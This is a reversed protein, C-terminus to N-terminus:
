GRARLLISINQKALDAIVSTLLSTDEPMEIVLRKEHQSALERLPTYPSYSLPSVVPSLKETPTPTASLQKRTWGKHALLSQIASRTRKVKAGIEASSQGAIVLAKIRALTKDSYSRIAKKTTPIPADKPYILGLFRRRQSIAPASRGLQKGIAIDGEGKNYLEEVKADMETNWKAGM